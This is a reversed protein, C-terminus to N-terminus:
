SQVREKLASLIESNTEVGLADRVKRLVKSAYTAQKKAENSEAMCGRLRGELQAYKTSWKVIEGARDGDRLSEVLAELRAIEANAAELEALLEATPDSSDGAPPLNEAPEAAPAPEAPQAEPIGKKAERVLARLASRSLKDREARDLLRDADEADLAAVEAHHSWSLSERRREPPFQRAVWAINMLTQESRGTEQVAQSYTEGYRSEGFNIWDGAWWQVGDRMTAITAGIEEWREFSLDDPLALATRTYAIEPESVAAPLNVGAAAPAQTTTTM